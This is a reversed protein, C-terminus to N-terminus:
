RRLTLKVHDNVREFDFRLNHKFALQGITEIAPVYDIIVELAEGEKIKEIPERVHILTFPCKEGRLDLRKTKDSM